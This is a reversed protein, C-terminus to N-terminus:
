VSSTRLIPLTLWKAATQLLEWSGAEDEPCARAARTSNLSWELLAFSSASTASIITFRKAGEEMNKGVGVTLMVKGTVPSAIPVVDAVKGAMRSKPAATETILM